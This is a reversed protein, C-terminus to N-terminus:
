VGKLLGWVIPDLRIVRIFIKRHGDFSAKGLIHSHCSM